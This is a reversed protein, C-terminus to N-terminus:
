LFGYYPTQTVTSKVYKILTIADYVPLNVGSTEVMRTIIPEIIPGYAGIVLNFGQLGVGASM